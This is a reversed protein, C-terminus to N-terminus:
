DKTVFLWLGYCIAYSYGITIIILVIITSWKAWLVDIMCERVDNVDTELNILGMQYVDTRPDQTSLIDAREIIGLIVDKYNRVSSAEYKFLTTYKDDVNKANIESLYTGLYTSVQAPNGAAQARILWYDTKKADIYGDVLFATGLIAVVILIIMFITTKIM